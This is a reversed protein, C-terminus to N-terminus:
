RNPIFFLLKCVDLRTILLWHWHSFNFQKLWDCTWMFQPPLLTWIRVNNFRHTMTESSWHTCSWVSHAFQQRCCRWLAELWCLRLRVHVSLLGAGGANLTLARGNDDQLLSLIVTKRCSSESLSSVDDTKWMLRVKVLNWIKVKHLRFSFPLFCKLYKDTFTLTHKITLSHTYWHTCQAGM